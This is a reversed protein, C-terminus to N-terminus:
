RTVVVSMASSLEDKESQWVVTGNKWLTAKSRDGSDNTYGAAYVDGEFVYVSSVESISGSLIQPVGNSWLTARQRLPDYFGQKGAVYVDTGSVFVSKGQATDLFDGTTTIEETSIGLGQDVGNKWLAARTTGQRDTGTYNSEGTVYVDSGSVVVGYAYKGDPLAQAVGNKWLTAEPQYSSNTINGVVYVDSGFVCVGYGQSNVTTVPTATEGNKWIVANNTWTTTSYEQGVVYVDEGAVVVSRAQSNGTSLTQATGNKWMRAQYSLGDFFNGAVYVDSGSVAVSNAQVGGDLLQEEGNKWLVAKGSTVGAIYIDPPPLVTVTCTATFGGDVTTVTVTAEGAAVATVVGGAVTAIGAPAIDWTVERNTAEEPEVTATLSLTEGITMEIAPEDLVVDTVAVDEEGTAPKEVDDNCSVLALALAGALLKFLNKKM